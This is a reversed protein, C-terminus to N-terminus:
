WATIVPGIHMRHPAHLKKPSKLPPATSLRTQDRYAGASVIATVAIGTISTTPAQPCVLRPRRRMPRHGARRARAVGPRVSHVPVDSRYLHNHNVHRTPSGAVTPRVPRWRRHRRAHPDLRRVCNCRADATASTAVRSPWPRAAGAFFKKGVTTSTSITAAATAAAVMLTQSTSAASAVSNSAVASTWCCFGYGVTASTVAGRDIAVLMKASQRGYKPSSTVPFASM